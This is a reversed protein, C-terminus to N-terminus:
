KGMREDVHFGWKSWAGIVQEQAHVCVLGGWKPIEASRTAGMQELGLETVSPDFYSPNAKLWSLVTNVLLGALNNGRFEEVVALRGLKLYPEKGDHFSTSRDAVFAKGTTGAGGPGPGDDM